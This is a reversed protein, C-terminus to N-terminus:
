RDGLIDRFLNQWQGTEARAIAGRIRKMDTALVVAIVQDNQRRARYVIRKCLVQHDGAQRGLSRLQEFQGDTMSIRTPRASQPPGDAVMQVTTGAFSLNLEGDQDVPVSTQVHAVGSLTRHVYTSPNGFVLEDEFMERPFQDIIARFVIRGLVDVIEDRGMNLEPEIERLTAGHMLANRAKALNELTVDDCDKAVARMLERIAQKEYPRHVPHKKCKECYLPSQCHPCRDYVKTTKKRSAAILEIAFWFCQFQDDPVASDIGIRYWRLARRLPPSPDFSLLHNISDVVQPDLFPTPDKHRLSDAWMLCSRMQLSPTKDVIQQIRYRKFSSGTVFALINLCESLREEAIEAANDLSPTEFTINLSLLFPSSFDTRVINRIRARFRGSPHQISLWRGDEFVSLESEIEYNAVCEM